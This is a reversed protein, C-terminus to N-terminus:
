SRDMALVLEAAGGIVYLSREELHILPLRMFFIKNTKSPHLAASGTRACSM